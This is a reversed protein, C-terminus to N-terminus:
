ELKAEAVAVLARATAEADAVVARAEEEATQEPRSEPQAPSQQRTRKAVVSRLAKVARARDTELEAVRDRLESEAAKRARVEFRAAALATAAEERVSELSVENEKITKQRSEREDVLGKLHLWQQEVRAREKELEPEMRAVDRFRVLFRM